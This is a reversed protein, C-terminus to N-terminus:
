TGKQRDTIPNNTIWAEIMCDPAISAQEKM